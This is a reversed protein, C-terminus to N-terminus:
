KRFRETLWESFNNNDSSQTHHGGAPMERQIRKNGMSLENIAVAISWVDKDSYSNSYYKKVGTQFRRTFYMFLQKESLHYSGGGGRGIRMLYTAM